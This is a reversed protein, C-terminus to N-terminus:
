AALRQRDAREAALFHAFVREAADVMPASAAESTREGLRPLLGRWFHAMTLDSLFATPMSSADDGLQALM